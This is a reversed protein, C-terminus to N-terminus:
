DHPPNEIFDRILAIYAATGMTSPVTSHDAGNVIMLRKPGGAAAYLARGESVDVKRDASGHLVLWPATVRPAKGINDFAGTLLWGGPIDLITGSQVLSEGSDFADETIMARPTVTGAALDISPAGGLSFGYLVLSAPTVGPLALVAQLAAHGDAFLTSESKSTGGSMGFGRYDYIFVDYGARWIWEVREWFYPIDDNNGHSYLVTRRPASGPQRALVGYLTADESKFSVLRQLSDAIVLNSLSYASVKKPSFLFGDLKCGGLTILLVGAVVARRKM